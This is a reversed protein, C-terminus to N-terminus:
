CRESIGISERHELKAPLPNSKLRRIGQLPICPYFMPIVSVQDNVCFVCMLLRILFFIDVHNGDELGQIKIWVLKQLRDLSHFKRMFLMAAM